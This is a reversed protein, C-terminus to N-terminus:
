RPITMSAPTRIVGACPTLCRTWHIRDGDRLGPKLSEKFLAEDTL